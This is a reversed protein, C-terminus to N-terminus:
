RRIAVAFTLRATSAAAIIGRDTEHAPVTLWCRGGAQLTAVTALDAEVGRGTLKAWAERITWRRCADSDSELQLQELPHFYGDLLFDLRKGAPEVDIGVVANDPTAIAVAFDGSHAISVQQTERDPAICEPRGSANRHVSLDTLRPLPRGAASRVCLCAVKAALRGALLEARRKKTVASAFQVLEEASLVRCAIAAASRALAARIMGSHVIAIVALAAPDLPLWQPPDTGVTEM